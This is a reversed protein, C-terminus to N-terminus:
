FPKLHVMYAWILGWIGTLISCWKGTRIAMCYQIAASRADKYNLGYIPIGNKSLEVLMPHEVQCSPCWTAWVNLLAPGQINKSTLRSNEDHLSSLEFAPLTKGLKVSPLRSPDNDLAQLFIVALGVFGLLPLFFLLVKRNM